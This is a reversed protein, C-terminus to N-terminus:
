RRRPPNKQIPSAACAFRGNVNVFRVPVKTGMLIVQRQRDQDRQRRDPFIKPSTPGSEPRPVPLHVFVWRTVGREDDFRRGSGHQNEAPVDGVGPHGNVVSVTGDQDTREAGPCGGGGCVAEVTELCGGGDARVELAGHLSLDRFKMIACVVSCFAVSSSSDICMFGREDPHEQQM